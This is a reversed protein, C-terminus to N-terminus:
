KTSSNSSSGAKTGLVLRASDISNRMLRGVSDIKHEQSAFYAMVQEHTVTDAPRRYQHMWGMMAADARLLSRRRRGAETTDPLTARQLQQRLTYLQDMQAMFEDHKAMVAKEVAEAQQEESQLSLCSTLLLVGLLSGFSISQFSKM